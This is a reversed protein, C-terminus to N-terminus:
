DFRKVYWSHSIFSWYLQSHYRNLTFSCICKIHSLQCFCTCTQFRSFSMKRYNSIYCICINAQMLPQTSASFLWWFTKLLLPKRKLLPSSMWFSYFFSWQNICNWIKIQSHQLKNKPPCSMLGVGPYRSQQHQLFMKKHVNRFFISV